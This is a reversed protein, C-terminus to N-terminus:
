LVRKLRDRLRGAVAMIADDGFLRVTADDDFEDDDEDEDEDDSV